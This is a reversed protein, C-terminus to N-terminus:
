PKGNKLGAAPRFRNDMMVAFRDFASFCRANSKQASFHYKKLFLFIFLLWLSHDLIKVAIGVEDGAFVEIRDQKLRPQDTGIEGIRM